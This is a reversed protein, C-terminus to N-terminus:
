YSRARTSVQYSLKEYPVEYGGQKFLLIVAKCYPCHIYNPWPDGGCRQCKRNWGKPRQAVTERRKTSPRTSSFNVPNHDAKHGM